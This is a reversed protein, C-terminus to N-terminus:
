AFRFSAEQILLPAGYPNAPEIPKDHKTVFILIYTQFKKDPTEKVDISVGSAHPLFMAYYEKGEYLVQQSKHLGFLRHAAKNAEEQTDFLWKQDIGKQLLPDM